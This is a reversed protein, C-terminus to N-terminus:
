HDNVQNRCAFKRIEQAYSSYGTRDLRVYPLLSKRNSYMYTFHGRGENCDFFPVQDIRLFSFPLM